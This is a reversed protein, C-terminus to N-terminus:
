RCPWSARRPCRSCRGRGELRLAAVGPKRPPERLDRGAPRGVGGRLDVTQGDPAFRASHIEGRQFTLERFSPLAPVGARKGSRTRRPASRRPWPSRCRPRRDLVPAESGAGRRPAAALRGRLGASRLSPRPDARPRARPREDHRISRRSREDLCREVIWRVPAPIRANLQSVPEPEERIIATLTEATTGREFARKGTAMEYLISGFSFQDSRYDVTRGAAQEPSMYGVTGMVMGPVRRTAPLRRCRRLSGDAGADRAQRPRLRPDQRLRATSVM